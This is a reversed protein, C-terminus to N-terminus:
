VKGIKNQQVQSACLENLRALVSDFLTGYQKESYRHHQPCVHKSYSFIMARLVKGMDVVQKKQYHCPTLIRFLYVTNARIHFSTKEELYQEKYFLHRRIKPENLTFMFFIIITLYILYLQRRLLGHLGTPNHSTSAGMNELFDAWLPSTLRVSWGNKVGGGPLNRISMETLPQTSGLAMTRSSPNTWNIFGIVEDPYSGAVKRCQRSTVGYILRTGYVV